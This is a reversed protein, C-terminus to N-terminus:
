KGAQTVSGVIEVTFMFRTDVTGGELTTELVGSVQYTGAQQLPPNFVGEGAVVVRGETIGGGLTELIPTLNEAMTVEVFVGGTERALSQLDTFDLDQGLGVPFIPVALQTASAIADALTFEERTNNGDTLIVVAPNPGGDTSLLGLGDLVAGYIPTGGGNDIVLDIAAQLRGKDATFGQLLRSVLLGDDRPPNANDPFMFAFDTIAARDQEALQNVLAKGADVRLRNPDNEQMSGTPDIAFVLTLPEASPEEVTVGTVEASGSTV